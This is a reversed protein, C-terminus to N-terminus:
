YNFQNKVKNPINLSIDTFVYDTNTFNLPDLKEDHELITETAQRANLFPPM